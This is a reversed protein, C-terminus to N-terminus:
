ENSTEELWANFDEESYATVTFKMRAHGTGCYEACQGHYVGPEDAYLRLVNNRGPITDLKGGLRPVWFSHIVDETGLHIDVPKDVPIHVEDIVTINAAPYHVSWEWQRGTVHIQLVEGGMVPLALMRHGAPIGFFLIILISLTPLLIGGGIIWRNQITRAQDRPIDREPKPRMAYVFLAVVVVFVATFMGFMLWWLFQAEAASPGGADLISYPGTCGTILILSSFLM